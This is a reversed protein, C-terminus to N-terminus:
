SPIASRRARVDLIIYGGRGTVYRVLDDLRSLEASAFSSSLKPQLREWRFPLRITRLGRALFHDVESKSPYVYHRGHTGPLVGEGFEAGALNVGAHKTKADAAGALCVLLAVVLLFAPRIM